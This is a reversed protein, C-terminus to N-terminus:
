QVLIRVILKDAIRRHEPEEDDGYVIKWQWFKLADRYFPRQLVFRSCCLGIAAHTQVVIAALTKPQLTKPPLQM